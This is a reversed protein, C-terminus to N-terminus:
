SEGWKKDEGVRREKEVKEGGYRVRGERERREREGGRGGVWYTTM